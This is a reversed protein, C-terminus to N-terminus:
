KLSLLTKIKDRLTTKRPPMNNPDLQGMFIEKETAMQQMTDGFEQCNM